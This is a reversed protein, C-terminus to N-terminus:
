ESEKLLELKKAVESIIVSGATHTHTQVKIRTKRLGM